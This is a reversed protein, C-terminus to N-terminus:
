ENPLRLQERAPRFVPEEDIEMTGGLSTVRARVDEIREEPIMAGMFKVADGQAGTPEGGGERVANAMDEPKGDQPGYIIFHRM